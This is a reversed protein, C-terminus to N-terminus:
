ECVRPTLVVGYPCELPTFITPCELTLPKKPHPWLLSFVIIEQFLGDVTRNENLFEGSYRIDAFAERSEVKFFYM